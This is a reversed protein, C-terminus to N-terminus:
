SEGCIFWVEMPKALWYSEPTIICVNNIDGSKFEEPNTVIVSCEYKNPTIKITKHNIEVIVHEIYESSRIKFGIFNKPVKDIMFWHGAVWNLGGKEGYRNAPLLCINNTPENDGPM